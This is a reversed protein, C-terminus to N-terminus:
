EVFIHKCGGGHSGTQRTLNFISYGNLVALKETNPTLWSECICLIDIKNGMQEILDSLSDMKRLLSRTNLHLITIDADSPQVNNKFENPTYYKDSIDAQHMDYIERFHNAVPDITSSIDNM